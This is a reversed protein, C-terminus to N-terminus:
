KAEVLDIEPYKFFVSENRYYKGSFWNSEKRELMQNTTM